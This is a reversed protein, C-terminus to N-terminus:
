VYIDGFFRNAMGIVALQSVGIMSVELMSDSRHQSVLMSRDASHKAVIDYQVVALM